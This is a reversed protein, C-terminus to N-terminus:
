NQVTGAVQENPITGDFYGSVEAEPIPRPPSLAGSASQTKEAVSVAFGGQSSTSSQKCGNLLFLLLVFMCFITSRRYDM